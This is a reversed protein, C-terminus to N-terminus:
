QARESPRVRGCESASSRWEPLRAVSPRLGVSQHCRGANVNENSFRVINNDAKDIIWRFSRLCRLSSGMFRSIAASASPTNTSVTAAGSTMAPLATAWDVLPFQHLICGALQLYSCGRGLAQGTTARSALSPNCDQRAIVSHMKPQPLCRPVIRLVLSRPMAATAASKRSLKMTQVRIRMGLSTVGYPADGLAGGIIPYM